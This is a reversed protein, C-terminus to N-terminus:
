ETCTLLKRVNMEGKLKFIQNELYIENQQWIQAVINLEFSIIRTVDTM